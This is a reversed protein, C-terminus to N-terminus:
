VTARVPPIDMLRTVPAGCIECCVERGKDALFIQWQLKVRVSVAAQGLAERAKNLKARAASNYLGCYRVTPKGKLPIHQILRRVFVDTDLTLVQHHKSQHCFYRFRVKNKGTRSVQSLKIPGSKVYRSLYKVVGTAYDYRECCHVVWNDRGLQNLLNNLRTKNLKPPFCWHSQQMAQRILALFKGRYVMMLPKQPFLCEKKPTVWEGQKNIGGHSVIFHTHLHSIVSRGWTHLAGMIGPMANLYKPDKAFQLLTQHAAKFLIDTIVAKNYRWLLDVQSPVTFVIHHHPCDLLINKTNQLWEETAMGRCQPCFRHKCSNYWVGCLHHNECYQAHGGLAATRCTVLKDIVKLYPLPLKKQRSDDALFDQLIQQLAAKSM